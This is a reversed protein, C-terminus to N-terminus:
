SAMAYWQQYMLYCTREPVSTEDEALKRLKSADGRLEDGCDMLLIYDVDPFSDAFELSVNRSVCFNVFEGEKLRLPINNQDSFKRCIELTSDTSGTDYVILSDAFGVISELSLHIFMEEDKVMMLVAIHVM